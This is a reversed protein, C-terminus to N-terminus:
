EAPRESRLESAEIRALWADLERLDGASNPDAAIAPRAARAMALGGAVDRRAEVQARGLWGRALAVQDAYGPSLRLRLARELRAIAPALQGARILCAAEGVLPYILFKPNPADPQGALETSRAFEAHADQCRGRQRNLEGILYRTYGVHFSNADHHEFAALASRYEAAAEDLRGLHVLALGRRLQTRAVVPEGPERLGRQLRLVRDFTALAQDWQGLRDLVAAVSFLSEATTWSDGLRAERIRAATRFAALAEGHRGADGLVVALDHWSAAEDPSDTGYLARFRAIADHYSAIAADTEDLSSQAGGIASVVQARRKALPSGPV